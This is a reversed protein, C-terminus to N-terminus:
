VAPECDVGELLWDTEVVSACEEVTVGRDSGFEDLRNDVIITVVDPGADFMYRNLILDGDATPVNLDITVTNGAEYQALFCDQASALLAEDGEDNALQVSECVTDSDGFSLTDDESRQSVAADGGCASAVLAIAFGILITTVAKM